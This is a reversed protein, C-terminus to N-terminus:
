FVQENETLMFKKYSTYKWNTERLNMLIYIAYWEASVDTNM